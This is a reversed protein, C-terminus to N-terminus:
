QRITAASDGATTDGAATGAAPCAGATGSPVGSPSVTSTPGGAAPCAPAAGTAPLTGPPPTAVVPGPDTPQAAAPPQAAIPPKPASAPPKPPKPGNAVTPSEGGDAPGTALTVSENLVESLDSSLEFHATLSTLPFPASPDPRAQLAVDVTVTGNAGDGIAAASGTVVPQEVMGAVVFSPRLVVSTGGDSTRSVSQNLDFRGHDTAATFSSAALRGGSPDALTGSQVVRPAGTVKLPGSLRFHGRPRSASAPPRHHHTGAPAPQGLTIDPPSVSSDSLAPAIPTAPESPASGTPHAPRHRHTPKPESGKPALDDPGTITLPPRGVAETAPRSEGGGSLPRLGTAVLLAGVLLIVFVGAGRLLPSPQRASGDADTLDIGPEVSTGVLLRRLARRARFLLHKVSEEAVGLEAAIQPLAKEEIERKVLAARHLPSLRALADRVIAADEAQLVPDAQEEGNVEFYPSADLTILTPRRRDARYRDICLNTLTRRAFAIAQLETEIESIALFLRLFTEQVVEDVDRSDRLYRRAHAALGNRHRVYLSSFDTASHLSREPQAEPLDALVDGIVADDVAAALLFDPLRAPTASKGAADSGVDATPESPLDVDGREV